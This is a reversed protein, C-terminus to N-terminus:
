PTRRTPRVIVVHSFARDARAEIVQCEVVDGAAVHANFVRLLDHLLVLAGQADTAVPATVPTDDTAPHLVTDARHMVWATRLANSLAIVSSADTAAVGPAPTDDGATHAYPDSWHGPMATRLANACTVATAIDYPGPVILRATGERVHWPTGGRGVIVVHAEDRDDTVARDFQWLEVGISPDRRPTLKDIRLDGESYRGGSAVIFSSSVGRVRPAPKVEDEVDVPYGAGPVTQSWPPANGTFWRRMRTFVFHRRLGFAEIAERGERFADLVDDRDDYAPM